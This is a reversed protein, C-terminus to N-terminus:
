SSCYTKLALATFDRTEAGFAVAVAAIEDSTLATARREQVSDHILRRDCIKRAASVVLTEQEGPAVIHGLAEAAAVFRRNVAEPSPAIWAFAGVLVAVVGAAVLTLAGRRLYARLPRGPAVPADAAAEPEVAQRDDLADEPAPRDDEPSVHQEPESGDPDSCDAVSEDPGSGSGDAASDDPASDDPEPEATDSGPDNPVSDDSVPDDREPPSAVGGSTVAEDGANGGPDACVATGGSGKEDGDV